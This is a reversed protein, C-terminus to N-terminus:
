YRYHSLSENMKKAESFSTKIQTLKPISSLFMVSKKVRKLSLYNNLLLYMLRGRGQNRFRDIRNRKKKYTQAEYFQLRLNVLLM